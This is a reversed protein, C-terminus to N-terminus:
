KTSYETINKLQFFKIRRKGTRMAEKNYLELKVSDIIHYKRGVYVLHQQVHTKKRKKNAKYKAIYFLIVKRWINYSFRIKKLLM